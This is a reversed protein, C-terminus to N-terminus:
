IRICIALYCLDPNPLETKCLLFSSLPAPMGAHRTSTGPLCDSSSRPLPSYPPSRRSPHTQGTSASFPVYSLGIYSDLCPLLPLAYVPSKGQSIPRCKKGTSLVRMSNKIEIYNIFKNKKIDYLSNYIQVGM